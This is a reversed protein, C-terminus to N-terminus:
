PQRDGTGQGKKAKPEAKRRVRESKKLLSQFRNEVVADRKSELRELNEGIKKLREEVTEKELRQQRIEADVVAAVAQRLQAEQEPSPDAAGALRAALLDVRSRAKWVDLGTEYRKPSSAKVQDLSRSVQALERVARRYEDPRMPKLQALLAGLEPHNERVFSLAVSEAQADTMDKASPAQPKAKAKDEGDGRVRGAGAVVALAVV